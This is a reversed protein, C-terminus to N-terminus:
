NKRKSIIMEIYFNYILYFYYFYISDLGILVTYFTFIYVTKVTKTTPSRTSPIALFSLPLPSHRHSLLAVSKINSAYNGNVRLSHSHMMYANNTVIHHSPVGRSPGYCHTGLGLDPAREPWAIATPEEVKKPKFTMNHTWFTALEYWGELFPQWSTQALLLSSGYHSQDDLIVIIFFLKFIFYFYFHLTGKYTWTPPALIM